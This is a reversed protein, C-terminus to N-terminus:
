LSKLFNRYKDLFSASLTNLEQRLEQVANDQEQQEGVMQKRYYSIYFNVWDNVVTVMDEEPVVPASFVQQNLLINFEKMGTAILDKNTQLLAM